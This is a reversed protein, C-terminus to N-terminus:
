SNAEEHSIDDVLKQIAKYENGYGLFARLVRSIRHELYVVKEADSMKAYKKLMIEVGFRRAAIQARM